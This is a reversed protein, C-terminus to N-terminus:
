SYKCGLWFWEKSSGRFHGGGHDNDREVWINPGQNFAIRSTDLLVYFYNNRWRWSVDKNVSGACHIIQWMISFTSQTHVSISLVSYVHLVFLYKSVLNSCPHIRQLFFDSNHYKSENVRFSQTQLQSLYKVTEKSAEWRETHIAGYFVITGKIQM